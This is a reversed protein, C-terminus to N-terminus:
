IQGEHDPLNHGEVFKRLWTNAARRGTNDRCINDPAQRAADNWVNRYDVKLRKAISSPLRHLRAEIFLRDERLLPLGDLPDAPTVAQIIPVVKHDRLAQYLELNQERWLQLYAEAQDLTIVGSEIDQLDHEDLPQQWLSLGKKIASMNLGHKKLMESLHIEASHKDANGENGENCALLDPGPPPLTQTDKVNGVNGTRKEPQKVNLFAIVDAIAM